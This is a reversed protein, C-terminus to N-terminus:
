TWVQYYSQPYEESRCRNRSVLILLCELSIYSPKYNVRLYRKYSKTMSRCKSCGVRKAIIV